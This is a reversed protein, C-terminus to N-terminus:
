CVLLMSYERCIKDTTLIAINYIDALSRDIEWSGGLCM